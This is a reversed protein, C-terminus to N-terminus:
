VSALSIFNKLIQMQPDPKDKSMGLLSTGYLEGKVLYSIGIFRDVKLLSQITHAFPRPIAGFSVEYLTKRVGVVERTIYQFMEENVDTRIPKGKKSVMSVFKEFLGPEIEIHETTLTRSLPDYNSFMAFIAGSFEKILKIILTKPDEEPSLMSLEFAFQNLKLIDGDLQESAEEVKKSLTLSKNLSEKLSNNEQLLLQMEIILEDRTKDMM